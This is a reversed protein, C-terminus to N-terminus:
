SFFPSLDSTCIKIWTRKITNSEKFDRKKKCDIYSLANYAFPFVVSPFNEGCLTSEGTLLPPGLKRMIVPLVIHM